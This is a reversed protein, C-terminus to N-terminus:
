KDTRALATTDSITIATFASRRKSALRGKLADTMVLRECEVIKLFCHEGSFETGDELRMTWALGGGEYFEHKQIAIVVPEPAFWKEMYEAKTWAEWVASPPAKVIRSIKLDLDKNFTM